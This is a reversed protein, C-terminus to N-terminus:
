PFVVALIYTHEAIRKKKLTNNHLAKLIYELANFYILFSLIMKKIKYNTPNILIDSKETIITLQIKLFYKQSHNMNLLNNDSTESATVALFFYVTFVLHQHFHPVIPFGM